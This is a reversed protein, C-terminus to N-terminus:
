PQPRSQGTGWLGWTNFATNTVVKTDSPLAPFRQSTLGLPPRQDSPIHKQLARRERERKGLWRPPLLKGEMANGQWLGWLLLVLWGHASIESAMTPLPTCDTILLSGFEKDRPPSDMAPCTPTFPTLSSFYL